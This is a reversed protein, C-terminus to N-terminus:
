TNGPRSVLLEADWKANYFNARRTGTRPKTREVNRNLRAVHAGVRRVAELMGAPTNAAINRLPYPEIGVWGADTLVATANALVLRLLAEDSGSLGRALYGLDFITLLREPLAAYQDLPLAGAVKQHTATRLSQWPKALRTRIASYRALSFARGTHHLNM